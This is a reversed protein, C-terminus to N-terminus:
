IYGGDGPLGAKIAAEEAEDIPVATKEAADKDPLYGRTRLALLLQAADADNPLAVACM